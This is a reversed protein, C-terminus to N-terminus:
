EAKRFSATLKQAVLVPVIATLAARLDLNKSPTHISNGPTWVRWAGGRQETWSVELRYEAILDILETDTM